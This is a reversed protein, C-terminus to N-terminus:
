PRVSCSPFPHMGRWPTRDAGIVPRARTEADSVGKTSGARMAITMMRAGGTGSRLGLGVRTLGFDAGRSPLVCTGAAVWAHRRPSRTVLLAPVWFADLEEVVDPSSVNGNADIMAHSTHGAADCGVLRERVLLAGDGAVTRVTGVGRGEVPGRARGPAWAGPDGFGALCTM